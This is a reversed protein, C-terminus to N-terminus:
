RFSAYFLYIGFAGYILFLSVVLTKMYKAQFLDFPLLPQPSVWGEVYIALALFILGLVFCVIIYPTKWGMPAHAGDTIAFIILILAPVITLLGWYDMLIETKQAPPSDKPIALLSTICVAMIVISGLWFYWRWSLAEATVGGLIIGFFFGLPAFAGYLGFILNKRPGPRYTQGLLMIGSPLFASPGLGQLARVAILMKYDQSFGAIFSWILFWALGLKFVKSGGYIDAIRGLPLLFAGTVLSFVSAPWTQTQQPLQLEDSLIPLIINFGSIFYEQEHYSADATM